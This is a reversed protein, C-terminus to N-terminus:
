HLGVLLHDVHGGVRGGVRATALDEGDLHVVGAMLDGLGAVVNAEVHLAKVLAVHRAHAVHHDVLLVGGEVAAALEGRLDLGKVDGALDLEAVRGDAKHAAAARSAAGRAEVELDALLGAALLHLVRVRELRVLHGLDDEHRLLGEDDVGELRALAERANREKVAVRGDHKALHHGELVLLVHGGLLGALLLLLRAGRGSSCFRDGGSTGSRVHSGWTVVLHAPAGRPSLAAAPGAGAAGSNHARRPWM